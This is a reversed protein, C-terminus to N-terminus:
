RESSSQRRMRRHGDTPRPSRRAPKAPPHSPAATGACPPTLTEPAPRRVRVGRRAMGRSRRRRHLRDYTAGSRPGGVVMGLECEPRDRAARARPLQGRRGSWEFQKVRAKKLQKRALEVGPAAMTLYPRSWPPGAPRTVQGWGAAPTGTSTSTSSSTTVGTRTTRTAHSPATARARVARTHCSSHVSGSRSSTRWAM